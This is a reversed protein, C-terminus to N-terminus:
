IFYDKQVNDLSVKDITSSEINKITLIKNKLEEEGIFIVYKAGLKNANKIKKDIKKNTFDVAVNIEKERLINVIPYAEEYLEGVLVIYANINSKLEPLLHHTTLFDKITVDGMGFGVSPIKESGFIDMLSDYRGGGFLSRNNAPNTDFMEFVIGSYYDFGRSLSLDIEINTIGSKILAKHIKILDSCSKQNFIEKPLNTLKNTKLVDLLITVKEANMLELMLAIFKSEDIKKIKDIARITKISDNKNLELFGEIIYNLLERSNIVIKYMSDNAGFNNMIKNALEIIEFEAWIENSGFLDVNLQWHQRLRGKQPREYRWVDPISFLRLPYGLEQSKSAVIRSVSPTMEPRLAVERGGRDIFSYIQDNIIEESTKSKYLELPEILPANYEQYGFNIASERWIKYIYNQVAMDDPYFDRTGKYNNTQVTM